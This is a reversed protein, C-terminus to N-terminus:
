GIREKRGLLGQPRVLLLLILALLAGLTKFEIVAPVAWGWMEVFMGIALAGVLAGFANGLGGLTIAAFLLLLLGAGSDWKVQEDLGLLVGGIGALLGGIIWVTLIVRDTDIGTASALDPNDSVARVAKGLRTRLLFFSVALVLLLCLAMSVMNAKTIGFPGFDVQEQVAYQNFAQARGGYTYQWFYRLFIALGISVIMASTLGTGRKRLPKFVGREFLVGGLMGALIGVPAAALVPLGWRRNATWAMIAGFTVIEGHGFNSLGTTGYILSLGISCIAIILGLKLGTVVAQPLQSWRGAKAREVQGLFFNGQQRAGPRVDIDRSASAEDVETGTPLKTTDIALKYPGPAPLPIEYRGEADTEASGVEAGAEDTVVIRVGEIPTDINKDGDQTRTQVRGVVVEGGDQAGATDSFLFGTLGFALTAVLLLVRPWARRNM